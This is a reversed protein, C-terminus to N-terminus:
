FLQIQNKSIRLQSSPKGSFSALIFRKADEFDYACSTLKLYNTAKFNDDTIKEILGILDGAATRLETVQDSFLSKSLFYKM